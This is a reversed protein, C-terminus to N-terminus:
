AKSVSVIRDGEAAEVEDYATTAATAASAAAAPPADKHDAFVAREVALAVGVRLERGALLQLAGFVSAEKEYVVLADTKPRGEGDKYVKVRVVPGVQAFRAHLEGM